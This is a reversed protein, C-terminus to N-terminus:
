KEGAESKQLELQRIVKAPNGVIVCYGEPFLRKIYGLNGGIIRKM